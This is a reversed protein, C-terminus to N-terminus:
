QNLQEMLELLLGAYGESVNETKIYGTLTISSANYNAPLQYAVSNFSKGASEPKLSILVSYKGSYKISTDIQISYDTNGWKIWGDPLESKNLNQEFDLNFIKSSDQANCATVFFLLSYIFLLSMRLAKM